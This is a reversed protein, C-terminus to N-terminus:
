RSRGVDSSGVGGPGPAGPGLVGGGAPGCGALPRGVAPGPGGGGRFSRDFRREGYFRRDGHRWGRWGMPGGGRRELSQLDNKGDVAHGSFAGIRLLIRSPM